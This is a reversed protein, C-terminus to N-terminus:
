SELTRALEHYHEKERPSLTNVDLGLKRSRELSKSASAKDGSKAEAMALHMLKLPSAVDAVAARLDELARKNDGLKLYCIARTDLLDSSPGLIEISSNVLKLAEEVNAKSGSMGLVFALNNEVIAREVVSLDKKGLLQRYRSIVEDSQGRLENLEAQQLQLKLSDADEEMALQLWKEVKEFQEPTAESSRARLTELGAQVVTSLPYSKRAEDFLAFSEEIDGHRGLFAGLAIRARPYKIVADRLLEEAVEYQKFEELLGSVVGILQIRVNENPARDVLAVLSKSAQDPDGQKVLLRARLEIVAPANPQTSELKQIWQEAEVLEDHKLLM